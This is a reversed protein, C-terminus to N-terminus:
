IHQKGWYLNYFSFMFILNTEQTQSVKLSRLLVWEDIVLGKTDPSEYVQYAIRISQIEGFSGVFFTIILYIYTLYFKKPESCIGSCWRFIQHYDSCRLMFHVTWFSSCSRPKFLLPLAFLVGPWEMQNEIGLLLLLVESNSMYRWYMFKSMRWLFLNIIDWFVHWVLPSHLFSLGAICDIKLQPWPFRKYFCHFYDPNTIHSTGKIRPQRM